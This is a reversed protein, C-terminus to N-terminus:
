TVRGATTFAVSSDKVASSVPKCVQEALPPVLSGGYMPLLGCGEGDEDKVVVMVNDDPEHVQDVGKESEEYDAGMADDDVSAKEVGEAVNQEKTKVAVAASHLARAILKDSSM